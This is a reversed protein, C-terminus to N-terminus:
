RFPTLTNCENSLQTYVSKKIRIKDKKDKKANIKNKILTHKHEEHVIKM